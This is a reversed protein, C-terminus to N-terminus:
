TETQDKAVYRDRLLHVASKIAQEYGYLYADWLDNIDLDNPHKVWENFGRENYKVSHKESVRPHHCLLYEFAERLNKSPKSKKKLSM